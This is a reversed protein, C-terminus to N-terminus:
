DYNLNDEKQVLWFFSPKKLLEALSISKGLAPRDSCSPTASMACATLLMKSSHADEFFFAPEDNHTM